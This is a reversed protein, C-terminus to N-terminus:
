KQIIVKRNEHDWNVDMGLEEAIFRIPVYTRNNRIVPATDLSRDTYFRGQSEAKDLYAKRSAGDPIKAGEELIRNMKALDAMKAMRNDIELIFFTSFGGTKGRDLVTVLRNEEDWHVEAGLSESIVRIPVMTRNNEIFPPADTLITRGDIVLTVPKEAQAGIPLLVMAMMVVLLLRGIRGKM